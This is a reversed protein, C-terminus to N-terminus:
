KELYFDEDPVASGISEYDFGYLINYYMDISEYAELAPIYGLNCNPISLKALEASMIEQKEIEQAAEQVHTNVWDISMKVENLAKELVEPHAEIFSDRVVLVTMPYNPTGTLAGWLSQYDLLIITNPQKAKAMSLFPEPLVVFERKGAIYMQTLQAPSSISYDLTVFDTTNFGFATFFIQTLQDPTGGVGPIAISKNELDPFEIITPDTTIFQLMGEGTVAALKIGVGKAYLNAAVNTPLAAMDLEGNALKAVVENFSSHVKVNFSTLEDIVGNKQTLGAVGFGSPGKMVGLNVVVRDRENQAEQVAQSSLSTVVLVIMLFTIIVKKHISYRNVRLEMKDM